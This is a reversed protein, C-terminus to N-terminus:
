QGCRNGAASFEGAQKKLAAIASESRQGAPLAEAYALAEEITKQQEATNGM